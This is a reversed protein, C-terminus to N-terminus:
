REVTATGAACAVRPDPWPTNREYVDIAVSVIGSARFIGRSEKADADQAVTRQYGDGGSSRFGARSQRDDPCRRWASDTETRGSFRSRAAFAKARGSSIRQLVVPNM